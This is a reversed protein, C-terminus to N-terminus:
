NNVQSRSHNLLGFRRRLAMPVAGILVIAATAPEFAVLTVEGTTYLNSV